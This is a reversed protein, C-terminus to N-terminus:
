DLDAPAALKRGAPTIWYVRAAGGVKRSELYGAEVLSKLRKNVGQQTMEIQDTLEGATVIPDPALAVLQLIQEDSVKPDPGPM